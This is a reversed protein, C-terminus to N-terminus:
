KEGHMYKKIMNLEEDMRRGKGGSPKRSSMESKKIGFPFSAKPKDFAPHKDPNDTGVGSLGGELGPKM